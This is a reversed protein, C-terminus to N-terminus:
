CPPRSPDQSRTGPEPLEQQRERLSTHRVTHSITVSSGHLKLPIRGLRSLIEALVPDGEIFGGSHEAIVKASRSRIRVVRDILMAEDRDSPGFLAAQQHDSVGLAAFPDSNDASSLQSSM